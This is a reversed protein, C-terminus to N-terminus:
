KKGKAQVTQVPLKVIKTFSELPTMNLTHSITVLM